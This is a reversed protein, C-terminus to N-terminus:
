ALVQEDDQEHLSWGRLLQLRRCVRPPEGSAHDISWTRAATVSAHRSQFVAPVPADDLMQLPSFCLYPSLQTPKAANRAGLPVSRFIRIPARPLPSLGNVVAKGATFM